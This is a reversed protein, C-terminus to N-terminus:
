KAQVTSYLVQLQLSSLGFEFLFGTFPVGTSEFRVKDWLRSQLWREVGWNDSKCLSIPPDPLVEAIPQVCVYRSMSYVLKWLLNKNQWCLNAAAIAKIFIVLALPPPPPPPISFASSLLLVTRFFFLIFFVGWFINLYFIMFMAPPPLRCILLFCVLTHAACKSLMSLM